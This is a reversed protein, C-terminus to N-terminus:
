IRESEKRVVRGVILCENGRCMKRHYKRQDPNDSTLWWQGIDRSLRKVVPEGEYNVAFVVGDAPQTDATNVIVVDDQFLAPEMSEGKVKIAVLREPQFGNREVWTRPVSIIGGDYNEPEISFGTIGASLRLRVKRIQCFREDDSEAVVVSRLGALGAAEDAPAAGQDFYMAGIGLDSELKRAIKESFARGERYTPSLIQSIRAESWSSADAINKRLNGYKDRLLALLRDRRYQYM